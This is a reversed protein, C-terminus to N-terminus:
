KAKRAEKWKHAMELLKAHGSGKEQDDPFVYDHYEEWSSGGDPLIIKRRKLVRKPLRASLAELSEATGKAVELERWAEMLLLREALLNAEKFHDYARQLVQRARNMSNDDEPVSAEFTAYSVWVKIHDTKLLLREYLARARDYAGEEFEFDIYAKWILEPMDIFIGEAECEDSIAMEYISRAREEDGLLGELEAFKCWTSSCEPAWEIFKGYLTRARDFERLQLEMEIYGTYLSAKPCRGLAQGLTRRALKLDHRRVLFQAYTLWVKSFTFREHPILALAAVYISTTREYDKAALEEYTAYYLWLYIYRRWYRKEQIPPVQAIAREYLDRIIDLDGVEDQEMRLYEFWADYDTPNAGLAAEYASRRKTIIVDNITEPTGYQKEFQAYSHYLGESSSKPYLGLAFKYIARARDIEEQRVEFKAFEIFLTPERQAEELADISREWVARAKAVDRADEEEFRAYKAWGGATPHVILMREFVHRARDWEKQRKEFKVFTLWIAEEPEWRMWREFVERAGQVSGLREEMYAYKYWFQDVRPLITVARDWVNRALNPNGLRTEMEAYKLWLVQNRPDVDLSREYVSRAREWEGMKEEFKAYQIWNGIRERNRRIGDEFAQRQRLKHEYTNERDQFPKRKQDGEGGLRETAEWLLQEASIQIPAPAKNKVKDLTLIHHCSRQRVKGQNGGLSTNM